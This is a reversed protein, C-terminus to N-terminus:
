FWKYRRSAAAPSGSPDAFGLADTWHGNQSRQLANALLWTPAAGDTWHGSQLTLANVAIITSSMSLYEPMAERIQFPTGIDDGLDYAGYALRFQDAPFKGLSRPGMGVTIIDPDGSYTMLERQARIQAGTTKYIFSLTITRGQVSGAAAQAAADNQEYRVAYAGADATPEQRYRAAVRNCYAQEPDLEVEFDKRGGRTLIDSARYTDLTALPVIRYVPYYQDDRITMDAFGDVMIQSIITNSSVQDGIWRRGEDNADLNAAWTTLASSSINAGDVGMADTLFDELIDPLATIVDGSPTGDDTKGQCNVTVTQTLPDYAEDLVFQGANLDDTDATFAASVDDIYVAEIEKLNFGGEGDSVAFRGGNGGETSDIQYAPLQEGGGDTTRWPGYIYPIPLYLSKTEANPFDIPFIRTRPFDDEDAKRADDLVIRFETDTYRIGGSLRVRGPFFTDYDNPDTGQGVKVVVQAGRIANAAILDTFYGDGNEYILTMTGTVIQPRLIRGASMRLSSSSRLRKKYVTGNDMVVAADALREIGSALTIETLM